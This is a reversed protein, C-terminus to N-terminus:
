LNIEICVSGFISILLLRTNYINKDFKLFTQYKFDNLIDKKMYKAFFIEISLYEIIYLSLSKTTKSEFFKM